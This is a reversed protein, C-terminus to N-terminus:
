LAIGNRTFEEAIAVSKVCTIRVEERGSEGQGNGKKGTTHGQWHIEGGRNM